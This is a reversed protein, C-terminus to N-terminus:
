FDISDPSPIVVGIPDMTPEGRPSANSVFANWKDTWCRAAFSTEVPGAPREDLYARALLLTMAVLAASALAAMSGSRSGLRGPWYRRAVGAGVAGSTVAGSTVAGSAVKELLRPWFFRDLGSRGRGTAVALCRERLGRLRSFEERCGECRDLHRALSQGAAEPLDDSVALFLARERRRCASKKGDSRNWSLRL